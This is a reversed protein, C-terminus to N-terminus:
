TQLVLDLALGFHKSAFALNPNRVQWKSQGQCKDSLVKLEGGAEAGPLCRGAPQGVHHDTIQQESGKSETSHTIRVIFVMVMLILIVIM